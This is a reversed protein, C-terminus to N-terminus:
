SVWFQCLHYFSCVRVMFYKNHGYKMHELFYTFAYFTYCSGFQIEPPSFYLVYFSFYLSNLNVTSSVNCFFLNTFMFVYCYISDLYFLIFPCLMKPTIELSRICMYYNSLPSSLLVSFINLSIIVLIKILKIFVIICSDSNM